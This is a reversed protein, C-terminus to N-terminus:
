EHENFSTLSETMKGALENWELECDSEARTAGDKNFNIIHEALVESAEMQKYDRDVREGHLCLTAADRKTAVKDFIAEEVTNEFLIVFINCEKPSNLRHVRGLAQHLSGYGWDLSAVILNPCNEFSYAQACNIGMLLVPFRKKKFLGATIAHRKATSDIRGFPIGADNLRSAVESGQGVRSYVVVTQEGKDLNEKIMELITVIKPNFNSTCVDEDEEKKGAFSGAPDCCIARLANTQRLAATMLDKHRERKDKDPTDKPIFVKRDLYKAYLKMQEAGMPVRVDSINCDVIDPNCDEKSIYALIPKILKLLRSPSSIIASNSRIRGNWNHDERKRKYEETTDFEKSMFQSEFTGYESMAYPFAANRKDGM